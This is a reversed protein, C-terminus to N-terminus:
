AVSWSSNPDQLILGRQSRMRRRQRPLTGAWFGHGEHRVAWELCQEYVKCYNTCLDIFTQYGVMHTGDDPYFMDAPFETCPEDGQFKPYDPYHM